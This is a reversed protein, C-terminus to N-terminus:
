RNTAHLAKRMVKRVTANDGRAHGTRFAGILDKSAFRHGKTDPRSLDEELLSRLYGSRNRGLAAARRDLQALQGPPLRLTIVTSMRCRLVDRSRRM